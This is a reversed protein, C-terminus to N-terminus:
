PVVWDAADRSPAHDEPQVGVARREFHETREGTRLLTLPHRGEPSGSPPGRRSTRRCSIPPAKPPKAAANPPVTKRNFGSPVANSTSWENVQRARPTGDRRPGSPPCRRSTRRCSGLDAARRAPARDEPQIRVARRELHDVREGTLAAVPANGGRAQRRAAVPLEVARGPVAAGRAPPRNEGYFRAPADRHDGREAAERRAKGERAQRRAAVPLEVARGPPTPPAAPPPVTKRNFGSPVANSTSWENAQSLPSPHM